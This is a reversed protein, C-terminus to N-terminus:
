IPQVWIVQNINRILEALEILYIFLFDFLINGRM